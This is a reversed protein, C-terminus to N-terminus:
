PFLFIDISWLIRTSFQLNSPSLFYFSIPIVIKSEQNWASLHHGQPGEHQCNSDLGDYASRPIEAKSDRAEQLRAQLWPGVSFCFDSFVVKEKMYMHICIVSQDNFAVLVHKHRTSTCYM